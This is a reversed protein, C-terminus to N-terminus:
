MRNEREYAAELITWFIHRASIRNKTKPVCGQGQCTETVVGVYGLRCPFEDALKRKKQKKGGGEVTPEGGM